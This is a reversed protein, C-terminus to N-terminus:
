SLQANYHHCNYYFNIEPEQLNVKIKLLDIGKKKLNISPHPM